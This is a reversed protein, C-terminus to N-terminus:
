YAWCRRIFKQGRVEDIVVIYNDVSEFHIVNRTVTVSCLVHLIRSM